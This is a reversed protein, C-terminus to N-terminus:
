KLNYFNYADRFLITTYGILQTRIQKSLSSYNLIKQIDLLWQEILPHLPLIDYYDIQEEQKNKRCEKRYASYAHNLTVLFEKLMIVQNPQMTLVQAQMYVNTITMHTDAHLKEHSKSFYSMAYTEIDSKIASFLGNLEEKCNGVKHWGSIADYYKKGTKLVQIDTEYGITFWPIGRWSSNYCSALESIILSIEGEFFDRQLIIYDYIGDHNDRRFAYINGRNGQFSFDLFYEFMYAILERKIPICKENSM